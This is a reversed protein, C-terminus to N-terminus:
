LLRETTQPRRACVIPPDGATPQGQYTVEFGERAFMQVVHDRDWLCGREALRWRAVANRQADQGPRPTHHPATAAVLWGGPRLAQFVGRLGPRASIEDLAVLPLWALDYRTTDALDQVGQLRLEVRDSVRASRVHEAAIHLSEECIDLGVASAGSYAGVFAVSVGAAGTGVDLLCLNEAELSAALDPLERCLVDLLVVARRGSAVGDTLLSTLDNSVAVGDVLDAAQRLMRAVRSAFVEPPGVPTALRSRAGTSPRDIEWGATTLLDALESSLGGDEAAKALGALVWVGDVLDNLRRQDDESGTM